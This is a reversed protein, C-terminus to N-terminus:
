NIILNNRINTSSSSNNGSIFSIRDNECKKYVDFFTNPRNVIICKGEDIFTSSFNARDGGCLFYVDNNLSLLEQYLRTFNRSCGMEDEFIINVIFNNYKKFKNLSNIFYKRELVGKTSRYNYHDVHLIIIGEEIHNKENLYDVANKIVNIHGDHLPFFAGSYQIITKNEPLTFKEKYSYSFPIEEEFYGANVAFEYGYKKAIKKYWKDTIVMLLMAGLLIGVIMVLM